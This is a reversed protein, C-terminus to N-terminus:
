LKANDNTQNKNGKAREGPSSWGVGRKSRRSSSWPPIFETDGGGAVTRPSTRNLRWPSSPHHCAPNTDKEPNLGRRITPRSSHITTPPRPFGYRSEGQCLLAMRELRVHGGTYTSKHIVPEYSPKYQAALATTAYPLSLHSSSVLTRRGPEPLRSDDTNMKASCPIMSVLYFWIGRPVVQCVCRIRHHFCPACKLSLASHVRSLTYYKRQFTKGSSNRWM